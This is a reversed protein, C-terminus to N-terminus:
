RKNLGAYIATLILFLLSIIFGKILLPPLHLLENITAESETIIPSFTLITLFLFSLPYWHKKLRSFFAM